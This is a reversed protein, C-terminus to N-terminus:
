GRRPEFYISLELHYQKNKANTVTDTSRARTTKPCKQFIDLVPMATTNTHKRHKTASTEASTSVLFLPRPFPDM